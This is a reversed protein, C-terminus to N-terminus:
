TSLSPLIVKEFKPSFLKMMRQSRSSDRSHVLFGGVTENRPDLLGICPDRWAAPRFYLRNAGRASFHKMKQRLNESAIPSGEGHWKNLFDDVIKNMLWLLSFSAFSLFFSFSIFFSPRTSIGKLNVFLSARSRRWGRGRGMQGSIPRGRWEGRCWMVRM